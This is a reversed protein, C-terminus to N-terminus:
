DEGLLGVAGLVTTSPRGMLPVGFADANAQARVRGILAGRIDEGRIAHEPVNQNWRQIHEMTERRLDEDGTIAAMALRTTYRDRITSVRKLADYTAGRTQDAQARRASRLGAARQLSDFVGPEQYVVERADTVGGAAERAANVADRVVKPPATGMFGVIDGQSLADIGRAWDTAMGFWPGVNQLTHFALKEATTGETPAFATDGAVPILTASSMRRTDTLLGPVGHALIRPMSQKFATEADLLDEDDRFADMIMFVFPALITGAAGALALQAGILYTLTARATQATEKDLPTRFTTARGLESDHIEKAMMSLMNLQHQRFQLILKGPANQMATPKNSKSYDFQTTYVADETVDAIAQLQEPTLARGELGRRQLELRAAALGTVQRNFQESKTMFLSLTEMITRWHRHTTMSEADALNNMDHTLTFDLVGREYMERMIAREASNPQLSSHAGLMDGRSTAFASLAGSFAKWSRGAGFRGALWPLTTLIVQTVNIVFQSPSTMFQIFGLETFKNVLRSQEAERSAAHQAKVSNLVQDAKATDNGANRQDRLHTEMALLDRAIVGDWRLQAISRAGKIAYDNFARAADLPFGEINERSQAHSMFAHAPLSQLYAETLENEMNRRYTRNIATQDPDGDVDPFAAEVRRKIQALASQNVGDLRFQQDVRHSRVLSFRDSPFQDRLQQRTVDAATVTDHGSFWVVKNSEKDRVTVFHDGFRTLPSYPGQQMRGMATNINDNLSNMFEDNRSIREQEWAATGFENQFGLTRSVEQRLANFRTTWIDAYIAQSKLYITQAEPSLQRWLKQLEAHRQRRQTDTFGVGDHNMDNQQEWSLNPHVRYMTAYQMMVNLRRAMAATKPSRAMADWELSLARPSTKFTQPALKEGKVRPQYVVEREAHAGKNFENEMRRKSSTFRALLNVEPNSGDAARTFLKDYYSALQNLPMFRHLWPYAANDGERGAVRDLARGTAQRTADWARQFTQGDRQADVRRLAAAIPSEATAFVPDNTLPGPDQMVQDIYMSGFEGLMADTLDRSEGRQFAAAAGLVKDVDADKVVFRSFGMLRDFFNQLGARLKSMVDPTMREGSALMDVLVEEAATARDLRGGDMKARIRDRLKPNAWLRQTVARTRDGLLQRLDRHGREHALTYGLEKLGAHNQRVLYINGEYFMGAVDPALERGTMARLDAVTDVGIVNGLMNNASRVFADFKGQAIGGEGADGVVADVDVIASDDRSPESLADGVVAERSPQGAEALIRPAGPTRLPRASNVDAFFANVGEGAASSYNHLSKAAKASMNMAEDAYTLAAGLATNLSVDLGFFQRIANVFSNWVTDSQGPMPITELYAQFRRSSAIQVVLEHTSDLANSVLMLRELEPTLTGNARDRAVRDVITNRLAEIRRHLDTYATVNPGSGSAGIEGVYLGLQTAAHMLEHTVTAYNVGSWGPRNSLNISMSVRNGALGQALSGGYDGIALRSVRVNGIEVNGTEEMARLTAAARAMFARHTPRPANKAMWEAATVLDKGNVNQMIADTEAKLPRGQADRPPITDTLSDVENTPTPAVHTPRQEIQKIRGRAILRVAERADSIIQITPSSLIADVDATTQAAAIADSVAGLLSGLPGAEMGMARISDATFAIEQAPLASLFQNLGDLGQTGLLEQVENARDAMAAELAATESTLERRKAELKRSLSQRQKATLLDWARPASDPLQDAATAGDLQTEAGQMISRRISDRQDNRANMANRVANFESDSMADVQEAFSGYGSEQLEADVQGLVADRARRAANRPTAPTEVPAVPAPAAVPAPTADAVVPEPTLDTPTPEPVVDAVPAPTADVVPEPATTPAPEPAATNQAVPAAEPTVDLKAGILPGLRSDFNAGDGALWGRLAADGEPTGPITGDVATALSAWAKGRMSGPKVGFTKAIHSKWSTPQRQTGDTATTTTRSTGGVRGQPTTLNFTPAPEPLPISLQEPDRYPQPRVGTIDINTVRGGMVEVDPTPLGGYDPRTPPVLEQVGMSPADGPLPTDGANIVEGDTVEPVLDNPGLRTGPAGPGEPGGELEGEIQERIPSPRRIAAAGGMPGGLIAGTLGGIAANTAVGEGLPQRAAWNVGATELGSQLTEEVGERAAGSAVGTAVGRATTRGAAQQGALLAGIRAQIGAAGTLGSIGAGGAGVLAGAGIARLQGEGETLGAERAANIAEVNTSGAMQAGITAMATRRGLAQAAAPTMNAGAAIQAARQSMAVTPILSPLNSILQDGLFLPERIAQGLGARVGDEDFREMVRQQSQQSPESMWGQLIENTRRFNDSMGVVRDLAGLTGMNALGYGAAGLNVAGRLLSTATDGVAEGGTRSRRPAPQAARLEAAEAEEQARREAAARRAAMATAAFQAGIEEPTM